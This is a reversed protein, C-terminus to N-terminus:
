AYSDFAPSSDNNKQSKLMNYRESFADRYEQVILQECQVEASTHHVKFGSNSSYTGALEGNKDYIRMYTHDGSRQAYYSGKGSDFKGELELIYELFTEPRKGRKLAYEQTDKEMQQQAEAFLNERDPAVQKRCSDLIGIIATRPEAKDGKEADKYAIERVRALVKDTVAEDATKRRKANSGSLNSKNVAKNINRILTRNSIPLNM